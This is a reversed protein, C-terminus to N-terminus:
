RLTLSELRTWSLEYVVQGVSDARKYGKGECIRAFGRTPVAISCYRLRRAAALYMCNKALIGTSVDDGDVFGLTLSGDNEEFPYFAVGRIEKGRRLLVVRKERIYRNLLARNYERFVWGEAILGATLRLFPSDLVLAHLTEADGKRAFEGRVRARRSKQWYYRLRAVIEFGMKEAMHRTARNDSGTCFRVARPRMRRVTRLVEVNLARAIGRGRYRPDVRLGELWIEGKSFQTVKAIGIPHGDMEAVILRGRRDNLWGRWVRPIYDGYEPWTSKCFDFVSQWDASKADRLKLGTV